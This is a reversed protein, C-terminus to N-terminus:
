YEGNSKRETSPLHTPIITTMSLNRLRTLFDSPHQLHPPYQLGDPYPSNQTFPRLTPACLNAHSNSFPGIGSPISTHWRQSLGDHTRGSWRKIPVYVSLMRSMIALSRWFQALPSSWQDRVVGSFTGRPSVCELALSVAASTRTILRRYASPPQEYRPSAASYPTVCSAIPAATRLRDHFCIQNWKVNAM